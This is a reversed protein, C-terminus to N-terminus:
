ATRNDLGYNAVHVERACSTGAELDYMKAEIFSLQRGTRDRDANWAKQYTSIRNGNEETHWESIEHLKSMDQCDPIRLIARVAEVFPYKRTDFTQIVEVRLRQQIEADHATAAEVHGAARALVGPCVPSSFRRGLVPRCSSTM